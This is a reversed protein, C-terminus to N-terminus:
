ELMIDKITELRDVDSTSLEKLWKITDKKYQEPGGLFKTLFERQTVSPFNKKGIYDLYSSWRYKELFKMVNHVDSTRIKRERWEPVVLDLPNLHIYYPLHIFHKEETIPVLKYRGQFLAGSREYKDNFYKAYGGNIKKMFQAVGNEVVPKLLLHYHNPMLCFALIEVFFKKRIKRKEGKIYPRGVDKYQSSKSKRFYYTANNVPETDNFEFLDHIFRFYDGGDMFIKRKDVGRNLVHYINGAVARERM